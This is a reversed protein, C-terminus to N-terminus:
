IHILSLDLIKVLSKEVATSGKNRQVDLQVSLTCVRVKGDKMQLYQHEYTVPDVTVIMESSGFAAGIPKNYVFAGAFIVATIVFATPWNLKNM